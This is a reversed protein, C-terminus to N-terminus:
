NATTKFIHEQMIAQEIENYIIACSISERQLVELEDCLMDIDQQVKERLKVFSELRKLTTIGKLLTHEM